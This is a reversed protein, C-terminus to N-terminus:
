AVTPYDINSYEFMVEYDPENEKMDAKYWDMYTPEIMKCNRLIIKAGNMHDICGDFATGGNYLADLNKPLYPNNKSSIKLYLRNTSRDMMYANVDCNEFFKADAVDGEATFVFRVEKPQNALVKMLRYTDDNIISRPEINLEVDPDVPTSLEDLAEYLRRKRRNAQVEKDLTGAQIKGMLDLVEQKAFKAFLNEKDKAERIASITLALKKIDDWLENCVEEKKCENLTKLKMELTSQLLAQIRDWDWNRMLDKFVNTEM